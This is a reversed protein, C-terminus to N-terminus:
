VAPQTFLIYTLTVPGRATFSNPPGTMGPVNGRNFHLDRIEKKMNEYDYYDGRFRLFGLGYTYTCM